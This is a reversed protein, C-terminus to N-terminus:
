LTSTTKTSTYTCKTHCYYFTYEYLYNAHTHHKLKISSIIDTIIVMVLHTWIAWNKKAIKTSLDM